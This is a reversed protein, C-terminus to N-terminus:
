GCARGAAAPYIDARLHAPGIARLVARARGSWGAAPDACRLGVPPFEPGDAAGISITLRGDDPTAEPAARPFGSARIVVQQDFQDGAVAEHHYGLSAPTSASKYSADTWNRQDEMEWLDGSFEFGVVGGSEHTVALDSVPDFLPLDTGDDLHVQPGIADPLSGAVPGAPATGHYPQGAFGDTPHHVCIGIKAYPFAALAAGRMRYRITGDAEGDIEAHWQYDLGGSRHRRTFRIRFKGSDDAIELDSIEGPLTNWDLDRVAVYIRRVIETGDRRVQRLDGDAFVVRVPGADLVVAAPAPAPTGTRIIAADRETM